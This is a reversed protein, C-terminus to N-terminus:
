DVRVPEISETSLFRSRFHKDPEAERQLLYQKEEEGIPVAEMPGDGGGMSVEGVSIEIPAVTEVPAAELAAEVEPVPAAAPAEPELDVVVEDLADLTQVTRVYEDVDKAFKEAVPLADLVEHDAAGKIGRERLKKALLGEIWEPAKVARVLRDMWQQRVDAPTAAAGPIGGSPAAKEVPRPPKAVPPAAPLPPIPPPAPPPASPPEIELATPVGAAGPAEPPAELKKFVGTKEKMLQDKLARMSDKRGKRQRRPKEGGTFPAATTEEVPASAVPAAPMPAPGPAPVPAPAPAPGPAAAEPPPPPPPAAQVKPPAAGAARDGRDKLMVANGDDFYAKIVKRIDVWTANFAKAKNGTADEIQAVAKRNLVNVMAICLTSGILDFPILRGKECTDKDVGELAAPDLAVRAIDVTTIRYQKQLAALVDGSGCAGQRVLIRGLLDYNQNQEALAKALQEPGIAGAEILLEGLPTGRGSRTSSTPAPSM